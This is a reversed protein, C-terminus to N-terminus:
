TGDERPEADVLWEDVFEQLVMGEPSQGNVSELLKAHDSAALLLAAEMTACKTQLKRFGEAVEIAARPNWAAIHEAAAERRSRAYEVTTAVMMGDDARVSCEGSKTWPQHKDAAMAKRVMDELDM